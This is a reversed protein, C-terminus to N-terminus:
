HCFMRHEIKNWKSTGPPFYCVSIRLGIADALEQLAVKWLPVRGGNSGGADAMVLLEKAKPYVRSGMQQWWRRLSEAAFQATDHDMGVGMRQQGHHRICWLSHGQRPAPRCFGQQPGECTTG